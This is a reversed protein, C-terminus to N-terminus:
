HRTAGDVGTAPPTDADMYAMLLRLLTAARMDDENNDIVSRRELRGAQGSIEQEMM